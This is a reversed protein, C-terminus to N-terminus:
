RPLAAVSIGPYGCLQLLDDPFREGASERPRCALGHGCKEWGIGGPLSRLVRM